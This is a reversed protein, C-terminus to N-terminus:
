KKCIADPKIECPPPPCLLESTYIRNFCDAIYNEIIGNNKRTLVKTGKELVAFGKTEFSHRTPKGTEMDINSGQIEGVIIFDSKLIIERFEGGEKELGARQALNHFQKPKYYKSKDAQFKGAVYDNNLIELNNYVDKNEAGLPNRMVHELSKDNLFSKLNRLGIKDKALYSSPGEGAFAEDMSGIGTVGAVAAAGFKLFGRRSVAEPGFKEELDTASKPAMSEGEQKPTIIGNRNQPPKFFNGFM